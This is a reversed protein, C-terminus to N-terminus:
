RPPPTGLGAVIRALRGASYDRSFLDFAADAMREALEPDHLLRLCATAFPGPDDAICAHQGDVAAIGEIGITTAVVPRRQAFAELVKIRTGGGARIPVVVLHADRYWPAMEPVEGIVEVGAQGDLRLVAPGAGVGVIRLTVLRDAGAQIRPLIAASFHQVADENPAYGLTGAFLLTFPGRPPPPVPTIEPLPLSNPLVIVEAGSIARSLLAQRDAESCVFVRDFAALAENEEQRARDARAEAQRAAEKHGSAQALTALRRSSVSELDDLDLQRVEARKTWPYAARQAVLRFVHVVDFQERLSLTEGSDQRVVRECGNLLENPIPANPLGYHPTVLLTVRFSGSLARLVAGARMALGNGTLAPAVPSVYLLRRREQHIVTAAGARQGSRADRPLCHHGM